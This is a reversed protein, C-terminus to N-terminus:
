IRTGAEIRCSWTHLIHSLAEPEKRDIVRVTIPTRLKKKSVACPCANRRETSWMSSCVLFPCRIFNNKNRSKKGPIEGALHSPFFISSAELLESNKEGAAATQELKGPNGRFEGASFILFFYNM